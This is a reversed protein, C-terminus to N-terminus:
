NESNSVFDNKTFKSHGFFQRSKGCPNFNIELRDKKKIRANKEQFERKKQSCDKQEIKLRTKKEANKSTM